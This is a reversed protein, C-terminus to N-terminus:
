FTMMIMISPALTLITLLFLIQLSLAVDKPSKAEEIDFAIKPIPMTVGGANQAYVHGSMFCNIIIFITIASLVIKKFM